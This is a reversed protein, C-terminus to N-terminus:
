NVKGIYTGPHISGRKQIIKDLTIAKATLALEELEDLNEKTNDDETEVGILIVKEFEEDFYEKNNLAIRRKQINYLVSLNVLLFAM